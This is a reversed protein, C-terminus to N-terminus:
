NSSVSYLDESELVDVQCDVVQRARRGELREDHLHEAEPAQLMGGPVGRPRVALTCPCRAITASLM